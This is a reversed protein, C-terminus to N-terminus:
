IFKFFYILDNISIIHSSCMVEQEWFLCAVLQTINRKFFTPNSGVIPSGVSKCDAVKFRETM